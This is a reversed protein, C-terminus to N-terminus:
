FTAGTTLGDVELGGFDHLHFAACEHVIDALDGHGHGEVWGRRHEKLQKAEQHVCALANNLGGELLQAVLVRVGRYACGESEDLLAHHHEGGNM